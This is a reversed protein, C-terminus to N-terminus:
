RIVSPAAHAERYLTNLQSPTVDVYGPGLAKLLLYLRHMGMAWNLVFVNVFAPRTAGVHARIQQVLYPIEEAKDLTWNTAARFVVQGSPLSYTIRRYGREGAYGYDPMFFRVQPLAAAAQAIDQMAGQNDPTFAQHTRFTRMDMRRLYDGTWRYFHQLAAHPHDTREAWVSPYIYGIGSVGGIFEDEPGAHRYYWEALTPAVDILTPGMTWGVAFKGHYPSKFWRWFFNQWTNLNDGDSVTLSLYVKSRDLPPPPASKQRLAALRVGSFVSLNHVHNSVVTVKGFESALKGGEGEGLGVGDGNWWFGRVVGDLPTAAFLKEIQQKEEAM